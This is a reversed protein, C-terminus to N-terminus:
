LMDMILALTLNPIIEGEVAFSVLIKKWGKAKKFLCVLFFFFFFAEFLIVGNHCFINHHPM